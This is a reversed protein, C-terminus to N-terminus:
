LLKVSLELLTKLAYGQLVGGWNNNYHFLTLIGVKM